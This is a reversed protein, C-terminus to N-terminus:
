VAVPECMSRKLNAVHGDHGRVRAPKFGVFAKVADRKLHRAFRDILRTGKEFLERLVALDPHRKFFCEPRFPESHEGIFETNGPHDIHISGCAQAIGGDLRAM